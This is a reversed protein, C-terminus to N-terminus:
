TGYENFNKTIKGSKGLIGSNGLFEWFMVIRLGTFM